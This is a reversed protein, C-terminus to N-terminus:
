GPGQKHTWPILGHGDHCFRSLLWPATPPVKCRSWLCCASVPGTMPESVQLGSGVDQSVGEGLLSCRSIRGGVLCLADLYILRHPGKDSLSDCFTDYKPHLKKKIYMSNKTDARLGVLFTLYILSAVPHKLRHIELNLADTICLLVSLWASSFWLGSLSSPFLLLCCIVPARVRPPWSSTFHGGTLVSPNGIYTLLFILGAHLWWLGSCVSLLFPSGEWRRPMSDAPATLCSFLPFVLPKSLMSNKTIQAHNFETTNSCSFAAHLPNFSLPNM